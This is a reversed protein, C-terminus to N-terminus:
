LFWYHNAETVVDRHRQIAFSLKREMCRATELARKRADQKYSLSIGNFARLNLVTTVTDNESLGGARRASFAKKFESKNM